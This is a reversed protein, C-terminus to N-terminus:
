QHDNSSSGNSPNTTKTKTKTKMGDSSKTKQVQKNVNNGSNNTGSSNNMDSNSSSNTTTNVNGSNGTSDTASSMNSSSNTASNSSSNNMSNNMSGNNMSNNNMTNSTEDPMMESKINGTNDILRVQYVFQSDQGRMRTIDYVSYGYTSVVKSVVDEPVETELVPLAVNFSNGKANYYTHMTKGNESYGAVWWDNSQQWKVNSAAPYDRTFYHQVDGPAAASYSGYANYSGSSSMTNNPNSMSSSSNITGNNMNTNNANNITGNNM